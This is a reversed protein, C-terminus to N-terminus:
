ESRYIVRGNAMSMICTNTERLLDSYIDGTDKQPLPVAIIDAKKGPELSGIEKDMGLARAGGMTAMHFIDQPTIGSRRHIQYAYRMEDWLNLSPSSALSDTGLGVPIRAGLFKKLHMTGVGIEHNSRPCHAVGAGSRRIVAIDRADVHVAHVALFDPSLIGIHHLLEFSSRAKPAMNLDWGAAAYLRELKSKKGQFLRLEDQTEAVHMCIRLRKEVAYSRIINMVAESVTHPSHPSLGFTILPSSRRRRPFIVKRPTQEMSIIEQYIVARLGSQFLVAPSANHSCIEAVTTVGSRVLSAINRNAAIIYDHRTLRKKVNLLNLVWGTYNSARIDSLLPPLELHTHVNVLGPMVIAQELHVIRHGPFKRIISDAKGVSHIRGYKVVLAGAVLPIRGGVTIIRDAQIIM